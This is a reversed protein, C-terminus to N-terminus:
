FSFFETFFNSFTVECCELMKYKLNHVFINTHHHYFMIKKM